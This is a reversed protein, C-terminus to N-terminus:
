GPWGAQGILPVFICAIGSRTEFGEGRRDVATLYQLAPPGIPILLRGGDALQTQLAAPVAPAGATVLIRDYPAGDPVGLTGDGVLVTVNRIDLEALVRRAASALSEHREITTVHRTLHALVAAQYGSGTGIELVRHESRLKLGATMMAVILPQSITQGWGIALPRDEYAESELEAPVFRHRPVRRIADLVREDRLGRAVLQTEVMQERRRDLDITM